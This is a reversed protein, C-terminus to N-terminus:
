CQHTSIPLRQFTPSIQLQVRLLGRKEYACFMGHGRIWWTEDFRTTWIVWKGKWVGGCGWKKVRKRVCVM